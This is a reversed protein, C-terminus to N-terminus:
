SRRRRGGGERFVLTDPHGATALLATRATGGAVVANTARTTGHVFLDGQALLERVTSGHDAAAVAITEFLGRVPDDPTTPRKYFKLGGPGGDVVLDTFTGGTDVAFRLPGGV